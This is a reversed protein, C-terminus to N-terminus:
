NHSTRWLVVPGADPARYARASELPLLYEGRPIKALRSTDPYFTLTGRAGQRSVWLLEDGDTEVVSRAQPDYGLSDLFFRHSEGLLDPAVLWCAEDFTQQGWHALFRGDGVNWIGQAGYAHSCAGSLMSVWYAFLQDEPGFSERIGEYWPELNIYRDDPSTLLRQPLQWLHPRASYDHGTQATAAGLLDPHTVASHSHTQGSTHVIIPHQTREALDALVTGWSQRRRERANCKAPNLRAGLRSAKRGVRRWMEGLLGHKRIRELDDTSRDPLLLDPTEAWLDSEGTLCYVVNLDDLREVLRGWWRRMFATDTWDIQMGWAGYVIVRLGLQNLRQIRDRALELYDENIRRELDWAVGVESAADPHTPAVEPPVGVVLQVANFGQRVRLEALDFFDRRSLRHTLGFWWTDILLGELTKRSHM